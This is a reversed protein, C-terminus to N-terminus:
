LRLCKVLWILGLFYNTIFSYPVHVFFLIIYNQAKYQWFQVKISSVTWVNEIYSLITNEFKGNPIKFATDLLLIFLGYFKSKASINNHWLYDIDTQEIIKSNCKWNM